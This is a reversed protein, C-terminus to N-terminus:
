APEPMLSDREDELLQWHAGVMAEAKENSHHVCLFRELDWEEQWWLTYARAPCLGCTPM